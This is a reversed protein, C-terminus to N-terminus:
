TEMTQREEVNTGPRFSAAVLAHSIHGPPIVQVQLEYMMSCLTAQLIPIGHRFM